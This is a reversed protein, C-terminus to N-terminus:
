LKLRETLGKKDTIYATDGSININKKNVKNKSNSKKSM